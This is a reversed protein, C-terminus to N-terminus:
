RVPVVFLNVKAEAIVALRTGDPSLAYAGHSTPPAQLRVSMLRRGDGSQFVRVEEYDLDSGHFTSGHVMVQTAHLTKVAFDKGNGQASQNMTQGDACFLRATPECCAISM